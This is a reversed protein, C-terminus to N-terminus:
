PLREVVLILQTGLDLHVVRDTSTIRASCGPGGAVDLKLKPIDVVVGPRVTNPAGGPNLRDDSLKYKGPKSTANPIFSGRILGKPLDDHANAAPASPGLLGLLRMEMPRKQVGVCDAHDFVLSLEASNSDGQSKASRVHAYLASGADLRCGPFTMNNLVNVWIEKGVKLHGSDMPGAVKAQITANVPIEKDALSPCSAPAAGQPPMGGTQATIQQSPVPSAQASLKEIEALQLVFFSVAFVSGIAVWRHLFSSLSSMNLPEEGVM